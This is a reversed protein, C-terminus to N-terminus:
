KSPPDPALVGLTVLRLSEEALKDFPVDKLPTEALVNAIQLTALGHVTSWAFAAATLHSRNKPLLDATQLDAIASLLTGFARGEAARLAPHRDPQTIQTQFMMQFLSTNEIAFFVYGAGVGMLKGWAGEKERKAQEEEIRQALELFGEEALAALLAAKDPFHHYPANHSVKATRAVLRLSLGEVGEDRLLDKAARLLSSRLNGHHYKRPKRPSSKM